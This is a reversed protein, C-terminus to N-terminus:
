LCDLRICAAPPKPKATARRGSRQRESQKVIMKRTKNTVVSTTAVPRVPESAISESEPMPVSEPVAVSESVPVPAPVTPRAVVAPVGRISDGVDSARPAPRASASPAALAPASPGAPTTEEGGRERARIVVSVAAGFVLLTVAAAAAFWRWHGRSRQTSPRPEPVVLSPTADGLRVSHLERQHDMQDPPDWAGLPVGLRHVPEEDLEGLSAISPGPWPVGLEAIPTAVSASLRAALLEAARAAILEEVPAALLEKLLNAVSWAPQDVSTVPENLPMAIPATIREEVPAAAPEHVPVIILQAVPQAVEFARLARPIQERVTDGENPSLRELMADLHSSRSAAQPQAVVSAM